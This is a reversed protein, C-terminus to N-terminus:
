VPPWDIAKVDLDDAQKLQTLIDFLDRCGNVSVIRSGSELKLKRRSNWAPVAGEDSLKSILVGSESPSVVIGLPRGDKALKAHIICPHQFTLTMAKKGELMSSLEKVNSGCADDVFLLRDGATVVESKHARKNWDAVLGSPKVHSVLCREGDILDLDLGLDGSGTRDVNISYVCGQRSLEKRCCWELGLSSTEPAAEHLLEDPFFYPAASKVREVGDKGDNARGEDAWLSMAKVDQIQSNELQTHCCQITQLLGFM